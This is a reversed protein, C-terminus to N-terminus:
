RFYMLHKQPMNPTRQPVVPTDGTGCDVTRGNAGAEKERRRREDREVRLWEEVVHLLKRPAATVATATAGGSPPLLGLEATVGGRVIRGAEMYAVHTCWEELGDFIHTAYVITAGREETEKRFFDLLALRGVVDLDVTIEDLLLVQVATM